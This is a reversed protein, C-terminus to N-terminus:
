STWVSRFCSVKTALTSADYEICREADAPPEPEPSGDGEYWSLVEPAVYDPTGSLGRLREGPRHLAAYGFDFLELSGHGGVHEYCWDGRKCPTWPELPDHASDIMTVFVGRAKFSAEDGHFM